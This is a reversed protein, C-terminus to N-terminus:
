TTSARVASSSVTLWKSSLAGIPIHHRCPMPILPHGTLRRDAIAGVGCCRLCARSRGCNVRWRVVLAEDGVVLLLFPAGSIGTLYQPQPRLTWLTRHAPERVAQRSLAAPSILSMGGTPKRAAAQNSLARLWCTRFYPMSAVTVQTWSFPQDHRCHHDPTSSISPRHAFRRCSACWASRIKEAPFVKPWRLARGPSITRDAVGHGPHSISDHRGCILRGPPRGPM